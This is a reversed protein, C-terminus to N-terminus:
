PLLPSFISFRGGQYGEVTVNFYSRHGPKLLVAAAAGDV